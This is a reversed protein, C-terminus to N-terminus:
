FPSLHAENSNPSFKLIHKLKVWHTLYSKKQPWVNISAKEYKDLPQQPLIPKSPGLVPGHSNPNLKLINKLNAWQTLCSKIEPRFQIRTKKYKDPPQRFLIPNFPAFIPGM